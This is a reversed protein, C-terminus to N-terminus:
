APRADLASLGRQVDCGAGSTLVRAAAMGAARL